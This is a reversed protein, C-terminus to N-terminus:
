IPERCQGESLIELAGRPWQMVAAHVPLLPVRMAGPKERKFVGEKGELGFFLPSDVNVM